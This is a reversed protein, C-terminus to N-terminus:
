FKLPHKEFFEIIQTLHDLNKVRYHYRTSTADQRNIAVSGIGFYDKLGQLVQVDREHQVVVFELQLQIGGFATKHCHVDLNFCGEGDVFGVIWLAELKTSM